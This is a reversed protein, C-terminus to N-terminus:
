VIEKFLDGGNHGADCLGASGTGTWYSAALHTYSVTFVCRQVNSAKGTCMLTRQVPMYRYRRVRMNEVNM